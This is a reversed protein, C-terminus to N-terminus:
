ELKNYIAIIREIRLAAILNSAFVYDSFSGGLIEEIKKLRYRLTNKHIFM